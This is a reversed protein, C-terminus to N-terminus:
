VLISDELKELNNITIEGKKVSILKSMKLKTLERSVTERSLGSQSALNEETIKHKILLKSGVKKGFRKATIILEILLRKRANGAMLYEMKTFYGDLGRYIRKVLDLLIAHEKTIFQLSKDKPAIAVEVEDIAEYYHEEKSDNLVWGMPFISLPKYTNLTIEEGNVTVSYMRVLGKKLLFLGQPDKEPSILLDSRKYLKSKFQNFFDELIKQAAPDMEPTNYELHITLLLFGFTHQPLSWPIIFSTFLNFSIKLKVQSGTNIADSQQKAGITKTDKPREVTAKAM